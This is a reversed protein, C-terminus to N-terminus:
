RRSGHALARAAKPGTRAARRLPSQAAAEAGLGELAKEIAEGRHAVFHDPGLHQCFDSREFADMVRQNARTIFLETGTTELREVLRNLMELGTTDVENIRAADLIIYRLEPKSAANALVRDELYGSSAFYLPGDFRLVSIRECIPPGGPVADVFSGDDRLAIESFRPHMSRHIFFGLSLVVGTMIAWEVQPALVLTMVFTVIAVVGDLRQVRLAKLIPEIRILNVVAMVIVAALTALPLHYLLPTLFVLALAVGAGAVVSSFGTAAGASLNVASRSFSGSVPYGQLVGAVINSLGQGVLEQSADLRQRTRAAMAKAISIAEMFGILSILMAPMVLDIALDLDLTPLNPTPLGAPIEAVVQGGMAEFGLLWSLLTTVLVATLVGPVRPLYRKLVIMLTLALVAMLLTAVHTESAANMLVGWVQEYAREAQPRPVGFIKDLQSTAIIIAAGNTFGIVVPHSLFDVLLGLRFLGLVLQILGTLVALLAALGVYLAVAEQGSLGASAVIPGLAAATMLSVVAVPGTALQRSSGFLAAVMVPVFAAYLGTQLPLGALQAYAMSQPVLVLAVTLGAVLDARLVQPARLEGIWAGFPLLTEGLQRVM